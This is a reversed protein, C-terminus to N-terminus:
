VRISIAILYLRTINEIGVSCYVICGQGSDERGESHVFGYTSSSHSRVIYMYLWRYTYSARIVSLIGVGDASYNTM